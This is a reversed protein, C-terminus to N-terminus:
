TRELWEFAATTHDWVPKLDASSLSISKHHAEAENMGVRGRPSLFCIFFPQTIWQGLSPLKQKGTAFIFMNGPLIDDPASTNSQVSIYPRSIHEYPSRAAKVNVARTTHYYHHAVQPMARIKTWSPNRDSYSAGYYYFLLEGPFLHSSGLVADAVILLCNVVKMISQPQRTLYPTHSTDSSCSNRPYPVIFVCTLWDRHNNTSRQM